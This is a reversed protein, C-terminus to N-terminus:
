QRIPVQEGSKFCVFLLAGFLRKSHSRLKVLLFPSTEFAAETLAYPQHGYSTEGGFAEGELAELFGFFQVVTGQAGFLGLRPM